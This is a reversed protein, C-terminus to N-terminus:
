SHDAVIRFTSKQRFRTSCFCEETLYKSLASDNLGFGAAGCAIEAEIEVVAPGKMRPSLPSQARLAMTSNSSEFTLSSKCEASAKGHLRYDSLELSCEMKCASGKTLNITM